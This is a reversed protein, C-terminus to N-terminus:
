EFNGDEDEVDQKPENIKKAVMKAVDELAKNYVEAYINENRRKLWEKYAEEKRNERNTDRICWIIGWLVVIAVAGVAIIDFAGLYM